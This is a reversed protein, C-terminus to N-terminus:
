TFLKFGGPLGQQFLADPDYKHSVAQLDAKIQAGYGGIPDQNKNAYNLYKFSNYLDRSKAEEDLSQIFGSVTQEIFDNDSANSWSVSLLANVLNEEPSLGLSNGGLPGSKSTIIPPLPQFSVTFAIGSVRRVQDVTQNWIDFASQLLGLDEQFSTTIYLQQFQGSSPQGLEITAATLNTIRATTMLSPIKTFNRLGPPDLDPTTYALDSVAFSGQTGSFGFSVIVSAYEDYDASSALAHFAELQQSATSLPYYSQAFFIDGSDFSVVDFSTVIGFNNSGGKLARWLDPYNSQNVHVTSGNALVTEYSLVNDCALGKRPSFFSIGGGLTLGGVGVVAVRGGTVTLNQSDLRSYVDGWTAGAGVTVHKRDPQVTTQNLKRLDLTAGPGDINASGAFPTHGGSRVAFQVDDGDRRLHSVTQIFVAVDETCEAQAICSPTLAHEQNSFYANDDAAYTGNFTPYVIKDGIPSQSLAQCLNGTHQTAGALAAVSLLVLM